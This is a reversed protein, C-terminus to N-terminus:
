RQGSIAECEADELSVEPTFLRTREFTLPEQYMVPDALTFQM